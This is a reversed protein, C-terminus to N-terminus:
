TTNRWSLGLSMTHVGNEFTHVDDTIYFVGRLGTGKDRIIISYGSIARVDGVAVISAEKTVGVLQAKAADKANVGTEKTYTGQYVGYKKVDGASEVKGVQTLKDDYIKVTNIMNDVTDLYAADSINVGQEITVGSPAGKEIVSVRKGVMVPMYKKGKAKRYAKVIIDYANEGDFWLKKINANTKALDKTPIQLDSCVKKVIREPTTNQFKYSASSRLLHHMFDQATYTATGVGASKERTTITGVFLRTSGDYLYIPDALKIDLNTFDKDYPNTPVTFTVTRSSQNHTGSWEVRGFDIWKDKWRLRIAM